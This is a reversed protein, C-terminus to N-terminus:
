ETGRDPRPAAQYRVQMPHLPDCTRIKDGRGIVQSKTSSYALSRCLIAPISDVITLRAFFTRRLLAKLFPMAAGFRSATAMCCRAFLPIKEISISAVVPNKAVRCVM